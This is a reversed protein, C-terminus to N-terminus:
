KVTVKRFSKYKYYKFLIEYIVMEHFRPNFHLLRNILMHTFDTILVHLDKNINETKYLYLINQICDKTSISRNKLIVESQVDLQM